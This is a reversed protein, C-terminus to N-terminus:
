KIINLYLKALANRNPANPLPSQNYWSEFEKDMMEAKELMEDYSYKGNKIALLEEANELPFTINGTLLLEKGETMLRFLHSAHKCDFEYKDELERRAPNRNDRWSIYNDWKQKTQRYERERAFEERYEPMFLDQSVNLVSQLNEGSVIPSDTLGFDKRQPKNKPPNLFWQRHSKIANLQSWAYGTFTYKAKKSLFYKRNEVILDWRDDKFIINKDPVFLLEIINPNADACLIMFKSLNYITRDKVVFGSDKQDFRIFPNLLIDIPPICVGRYDIDSDKTATGYLNSGTICDFILCDEPNFTQM